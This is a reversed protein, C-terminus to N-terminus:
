LRELDGEDLPPPSQAESPSVKKHIWVETDSFPSPDFRLVGLDPDGAKRRAAHLDVITSRPSDTALAIGFPSALAQYLYVSLREHTTSM